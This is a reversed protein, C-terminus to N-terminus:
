VMLFYPGSLIKPNVGIGAMDITPYEDPARNM